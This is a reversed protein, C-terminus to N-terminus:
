VAQIATQAVRQSCPNVKSSNHSGTCSSLLRPSLLLLLSCIECCWVCWCWVGVIVSACTGPGGKGRAGSLLPFVVSLTRCLPRTVHFLSGVRHPGGSNSLRAGTEDQVFAPAGLKPSSVVLPTHKLLVVAADMKPSMKVLCFCSLIRSKQM